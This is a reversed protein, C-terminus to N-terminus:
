TEICIHWQHQHGIIAAGVQGARCPTQRMVAHHDHPARAVGPAAPRQGFFKVTKGGQQDGIIRRQHFTHAGGAQMQRFCLHSLRQVPARTM